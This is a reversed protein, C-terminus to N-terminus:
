LAQSSSNAVAHMPVKNRYCGESPIWQAHKPRTPSSRKGVLDNKRTRSAWANGYKDLVPAKTRGM